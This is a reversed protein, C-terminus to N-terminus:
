YEKELRTFRLRATGQQIFPAPQTPKAVPNFQQLDVFQAPALPCCTYM